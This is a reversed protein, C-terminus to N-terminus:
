PLTCDLPAPDFVTGILLHKGQMAASAAASLPTGLSAYLEEVVPNKGNLRIRLVQAPARTEGSSDFAHALFAMTKPHAALLLNGAEDWELNDPGTDLMVKQQPSLAGTAADRAYFWVSHGLVQAVVVRKGDRSLTIGNAYATGEVVPRFKKGDYYVVSGRGFSPGLLSTTTDELLQGIGAPGHHDNTVYFRTADVAAIDNASALAADTYTHQHVLLGDSGVEFREISSSSLTPHNVVFLTQKGAGDIFLSIGHPHLAPKFAASLLVPPAATAPDYRYIGGQKPHGAIAARRDDSSLYAFGDPHFTIDEAGPVGPIPRCTGIARPKVERFEGGAHLVRVFLGVSVLLWIGVIWARKKNKM